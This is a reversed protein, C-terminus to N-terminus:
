GASTAEAGSRDDSDAEGRQSAPKEEISTTSLGWRSLLQPTPPRLPLGVTGHDDTALILYLMDSGSGAHVFPGAPVDM